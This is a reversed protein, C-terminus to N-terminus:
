YMIRKFMSTVGQLLLPNKKYDKKRIVELYKSIVAYDVFISIESVFNFQRQVFTEEDSEENMSDDDDM